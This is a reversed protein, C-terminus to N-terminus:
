LPLLYWGGEASLCSTVGESAKLTTVRANKDCGALRLMTERLGCTQLSDAYVASISITYLIPANWTLVPWSSGSPFYLYLEIEEKVEANSTPPYDLGHWLRKVELVSVRYGKYILSPSGLHQYPRIRFMKDGGPNSGRVMSVTNNMLNLYRCTNCKM